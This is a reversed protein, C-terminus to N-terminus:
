PEYKLLKSSSIFPNDDELPPPPPPPLSNLNANPQSGFATIDTHADCDADDDDDDDDAAAAAADDDDDAPKDTGCKRLLTFSDESNLHM